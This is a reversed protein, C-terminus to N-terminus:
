FLDSLLMFGKKAAISFKTPCTNHVVGVNPLYYSISVIKCGKSKFAIFVPKCIL